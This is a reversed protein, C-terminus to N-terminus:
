RAASGNEARDNAERRALVELARVAWRGGAGPLGNRVGLVTHVPAIRVISNTMFVETCDDLESREVIREEVVVGDALLGAILEGRVVGALAGRDLSPTVVREGHALFLNSITGEALDGQSTSVLADWAGEAQAEELTLVNRLRSTSKTGELALDLVKPHRALAVAVGNAASCDAVRATIVMRPPGGPSGRSLSLRIAFAGDGLQAGYDALAAAPDHPPPFAIGLVSSGCELRALHQREFYRRGGEQLLTEFVALGLAFGQDDSPIAPRGPAVLAGDVWSPLAATV